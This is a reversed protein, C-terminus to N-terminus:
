ESGYVTQSLGLAVIAKAPKVDEAYAACCVLCVILSVSLLKMKISCRDKVNWTVKTFQFLLLKYFTFIFNVKFMTQPQKNPIPHIKGVLVM